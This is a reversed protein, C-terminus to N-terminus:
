VAATIVWRENTLSKRWHTQSNETRGQEGDSMKQFSRRDCQQESETANYTKAGNTEPDSSRGTTRHDDRTGTANLETWM